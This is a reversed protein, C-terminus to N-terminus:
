KNHLGEVLLIRFINRMSVITCTLVVCFPRSDFRRGARVAEGGVRGAKVCVCLICAVILVSGHLVIISITQLIPALLLVSLVLRPPTARFDAGGSVSTTASSIDYFPPANRLAVVLPRCVM